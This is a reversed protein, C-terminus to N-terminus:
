SFNYQLRDHLSLQIGKECKHLTFVGLSNNETWGNPKSGHTEELSSPVLHVNRLFCFLFYNAGGRGCFYTKQFQVECLYIPLGILLITFLSKNIKRKGGEGIFVQFTELIYPPLIKYLLMVIIYAYKFIIKYFVRLMQSAQPVFSIM